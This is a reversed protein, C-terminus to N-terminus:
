SSGAPTPFAATSVEWGYGELQEEVWEAAEFYADTHGPRSGVENALYSRACPSASGHTTPASRPPPAHTTPDPQNASRQRANPETSPSTSVAARGGAGADESGTCATLLVVAGVVPVWRKM